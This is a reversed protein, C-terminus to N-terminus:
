INITSGPKLIKKKSIFRCKIAPRAYGLTELYGSQSGGIMVFPIEHFKIGLRLFKLTEELSFPHRVEEFQIAQFYATPVMWFAATFDTLNTRYLVRLGFQSVVNWIYKFTDYEEPKKSKVLYRSASIIDKPYQKALDIFQSIVKPDGAMDAVVMTTHSGKAAANADRVAGGMGPLKQWLVSYSIGLEDCKSQMKEISKFSEKETKECVVIIFERIDDYNCTDLILTVVQEFLDTERLVPIIISCNVFKM